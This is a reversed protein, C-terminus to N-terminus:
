NGAPTQPKWLDIWRPVLIRIATGQDPTSEIHIEGQHDSIIRHVATLGMGTGQPKTSFFPDFIYPQDASDIGMGTDRLTIELHQPTPQVGVELVGGAAMAERANDLLHHFALRMLSADVFIPSLDPAIRSEVQIGQRAMAPASEQLVKAMLEGMNTPRLNPEPLYAFEEIEKVMRSLKDLQAVIFRCIEQVKDGAPALKQLRRTFGGIIMVPNRVEHAVGQSIKALASLREAQILKNQATKLEELTLALRDNLRQHLRANDLAIGIQNGLITLLELDNAAFIEGDKKNILELVGILRDKAKLPVCLISRTKFGSQVDFTHSFRPDTLTDTCILPKETQAVWGAIGEGIKLRLGRIQTAMPGRALRFYLEGTSKDVEFISSVEAGLFQEVCDLANELVEQINLSSNILTSLQVLLEIENRPSNRSVEM